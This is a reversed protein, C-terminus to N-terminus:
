KGKSEIEYLIDIILALSIIVATKFDFIERVVELGVVILIISLAERWDTKM